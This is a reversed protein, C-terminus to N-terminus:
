GTQNTCCLLAGGTGGGGCTIEWRKWSPQPMNIVPNLIPTNPLFHREVHTVTVPPKPFANDLIDRLEKAEELTLSIEKGNIRLVVKSVEIQKSM